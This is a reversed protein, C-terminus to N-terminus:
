MQEQLRYLRRLCIRQKHSDGIESIISFINQNSTLPFASKGKRQVGYMDVKNECKISCPRTLQSLHTTGTKADDTKAYIKNYLWIYM